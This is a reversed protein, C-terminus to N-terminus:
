LFLFRVSSHEVHAASAPKGTTTPEIISDGIEPLHFGSLEGERYPMCGEDADKVIKYPKM